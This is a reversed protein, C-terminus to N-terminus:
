YHMYLLKSFEKLKKQLNEEKFSRHNEFVPFNEIKKRMVMERGPPRVSSSISFRGAGAGSSKSRPSLKECCGEGKEVVSRRAGGGAGARFDEM